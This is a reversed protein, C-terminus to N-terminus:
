SKPKGWNETRVSVLPSQGAKANPGALVGPGVSMNRYAGSMARRGILKMQNPTIVRQGGTAFDVAKAGKAAAGAAFFNDAAAQQALPLKPAMSEGPRIGDRLNTMKHDQMVIDATADIAKTRVNDGIHGPAKQEDLMRRLNGIEQQAASLASADICKRNPCPPLKRPVAKLTRTWEHGCKECTFSCKYMKPELFGEPEVVEYGTYETSM